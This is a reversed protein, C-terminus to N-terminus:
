QGCWGSPLTASDRARQSQRFGARPRTSRATRSSPMSGAGSTRRRRGTARRRAPACPRRARRDQHSGAVAGVLFCRAAPRDRPRRRRPCGARRPRAPDQAIAIRLRISDAIAHEDGTGNMRQGALGLALLPQEREDVAERAAAHEDDAVEDGVLEDVALDGADRALRRDEDQLVVRRLHHGAAGAVGGVVDGREAAARAEGPEDAGIGFAAPQEGAKVAADIPRSTTRARSYRVGTLVRM